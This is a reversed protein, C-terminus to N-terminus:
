EAALAAKTLDPGLDDEGRLALLLMFDGLALSVSYVTVADAENFHVISDTTGDGDADSAEIV